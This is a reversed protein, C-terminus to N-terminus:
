TRELRALLSSGWILKGCMYNVSKEQIYCMYVIFARNVSSMFYLNGYYDKNWTKITSETNSNFIRACLYAPPRYFLYLIDKTHIQFEYNKLTYESDNFTGTARYFKTEYDCAPSQSIKMSWECFWITKKLPKRFAM